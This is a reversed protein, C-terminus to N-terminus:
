NKQRTKLPSKHTKTKLNTSNKEKLVSQNKEKEQKTKKENKEKEKKNEKQKNDKKEKENEKENTNEKEKEKEKENKMKQTNRRKEIENVQFEMRRKRNENLLHNLDECQPNENELFDRIKSVSDSIKSIKPSIILDRIVFPKRCLPCLKSFRASRRICSNCYIHSCPLISPKQLTDFCLPCEYIKKMENLYEILSDSKRLVSM